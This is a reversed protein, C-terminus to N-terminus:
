EKQSIKILIHGFVSFIMLFAGLVRLKGIFHFAVPLFVGIKEFFLLM